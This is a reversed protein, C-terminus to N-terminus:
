TFFDTFIHHNLKDMHAPKGMACFFVNFLNFLFLSLAIDSVSLSTATYVCVFVLVRERCM